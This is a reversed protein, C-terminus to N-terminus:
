DDRKFLTLIFLVIQHDNKTYGSGQEQSNTFAHSKYIGFVCM